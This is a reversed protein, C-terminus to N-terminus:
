QLHPGTRPQCETQITEMTPTFRKPEVASVTPKDSLLILAGIGFMPAPSHGSTRERWTTPGVRLFCNSSPTTSM